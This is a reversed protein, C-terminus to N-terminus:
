ILEGAAEKEKTLKMVADVLDDRGAVNFEEIHRDALEDWEKITFYPGNGPTTSDYDKTSSGGHRSQLLLDNFLYEPTQLEKAKRMATALSPQSESQM